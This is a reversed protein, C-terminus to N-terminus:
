FFEDEQANGSEDARIKDNDTTLYIDIRKGYEVQRGASVSQRYVRFLIDNGQPETDYDTMGVVLNQGLLAERAQQLDMGRLDPVTTIESESTQGIVLTVSSDEDIRTGAELPEGNYLIDLVLDQYEAPKYTVDSVKISLTRLMAEAQRYSLDRVEPIPVKRKAKSNMVIYIERGKKVLTGGVPTQELVTGLRKQKNYTSDIVTFRLEANSLLADAEAEYLGRVDPVEVGEGHHTYRDLAYFVGYIILAIIVFAVFLNKLVFAWFSDKWFSKIDM